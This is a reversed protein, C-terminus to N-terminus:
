NRKSCICRMRPQCTNLSLPNRYLRKSIYSLLNGLGDLDDIDVQSWYKRWEIDRPLRNLYEHFKRLIINFHVQFELLMNWSPRKMTWYWKMFLQKHQTIISRNGIKKDKMNKMVALSHLVVEYDDDERYLAYM